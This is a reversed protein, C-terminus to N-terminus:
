QPTLWPYTTLEPWRKFPNHRIYTLKQDFEDPNRVLRDFYEPQWLRNGERNTMIKRASFSKWSKVLAELPHAAHPRVLVHVHDDMVVSAPLEYRTGAFHHIANLVTDREAAILPAQGASVRWTVFYCAGEERWHPLGRRYFRIASPNIDM